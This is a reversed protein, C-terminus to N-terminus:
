RGARELTKRLEAVRPLNERKESPTPTNDFTPRYLPRRSPIQKPILGPGRVYQAKDEDETELLDSM